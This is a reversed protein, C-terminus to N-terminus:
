AHQPTRRLLRAIAPRRAAFGLLRETLEADERAEAADEIAEGFLRRIEAVRAVEAASPEPDPQDAPLGALESGDFWLVQDTTCLDLKVTGTAPGDGAAGEPAEDQDVDLSVVAMAQECMPCGRIGPAASRGRQWLLALEDEQAVGHAESLTIALGHGTPCVWADLEGRHTRSLAAGCLPCAPSTTSM